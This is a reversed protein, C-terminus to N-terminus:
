SVLQLMSNSILSSICTCHWSELRSLAIVEVPKLQHFGAGFGLQGISAALSGFRAGSPKERSLEMLEAAKAPAAAVSTGPTKGCKSCKKFFM